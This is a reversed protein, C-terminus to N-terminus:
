QSGMSALIKSATEQYFSRDDNAIDSDNDVVLLPSSVKGPVLWLEHLQHLRQLYQFPVSVEEARSRGQLRQFSIQPDCRLYIVLDPKTLGTVFHKLVELLVAEQAHDIVGMELQLPVFCYIGSEISREAIIVPKDMPLNSRRVM